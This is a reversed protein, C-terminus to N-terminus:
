RDTPSIREQPGVPSVSSTGRPAIRPAALPDLRHAAVRERVGRQEAANPAGAEFRVGLVRGFAEACAQVLNEPTYVFNLERLSTAVGDALGAARRIAPPDPQLRISGHQLVGGAARRQASGVLKRGGSCLEDGAPESFCDFAGPGSGAASGSRDVSPRASRPAPQADIGLGALAAQLARAVLEYTAHLGPPLVEERAAIAYTLDGGHLVARGGTVRRVVGVGAGACADLREAPLRQGYGLSLWPGSWRYLRLTPSAGDVVSSLLAEDVGMNWPGPAEGDVLLRWVRPM